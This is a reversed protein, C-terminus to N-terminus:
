LAIRWAGKSYEAHTMIPLIYVRETNYHIVTVLRWKNGGINFVTM